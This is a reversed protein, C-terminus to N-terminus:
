LKIKFIYKKYKQGFFANKPFFPKKVGQRAGGLLTAESSKTQPSIESRELFFFNQCKGTFIELWNEKKVGVNKAM